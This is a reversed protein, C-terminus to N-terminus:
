LLWSMSDADHGPETGENPVGPPLILGGATQQPAQMPQPYAQPPPAQGLQQAAPDAARALQAFMDNSEVPLQAQVQQQNPLPIDARQQMINPVAQIVEEGTRAPMAYGQQQIDGPMSNQQPGASGSLQKIGRDVAAQVAEMIQLIWAAQGYKAVLVQGVANAAARAEELYVPKPIQQRRGRRGIRFEAM